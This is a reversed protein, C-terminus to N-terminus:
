DEKTVCEQNLRSLHSEGFVLIKYLKYNSSNPFKQHNSKGYNAMKTQPTEQSTKIIGSYTKKGSVVPM